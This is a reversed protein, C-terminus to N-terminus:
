FNAEKKRCVFVYREDNPIPKEFSYDGYIANLEFRAKLNNLIDDITYIKEKLTDKYVNNNEEFEVNFSAINDKDVIGEWKFLVNEIKDEVKVAMNERIEHPSNIDFIFIGNSKLARYVNDFFVELDRDDIIHNIVDGLALVADVEKFNQKKTLDRVAFQIKKGKFEKIANELMTNSIDYGIVNYKKSLLHGLHGTGCGFDYIDSINGNFMDFIEMVYEAIPEFDVYKILLPYYKAYIGYSKM